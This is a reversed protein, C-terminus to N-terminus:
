KPWRPRCRMMGLLSVQPLSLPRLGFRVVRYAVASFIAALHWVINYIKQPAATIESRELFSDPLLYSVISVVDVALLCSALTVPGAVLFTVVLFSVVLKSYAKCFICPKFIVSSFFCVIFSENFTPSLVVLSRRSHSAASVRLELNCINLLFYSWRSGPAM